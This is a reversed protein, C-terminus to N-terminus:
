AKGGKGQNLIHLATEESFYFGNDPPEWISPGFREKPKWGASLLRREDESRPTRAAKIDVVPAPTKDTRQNPSERFERRENTPGEQDKRDYREKLAELWPRGGM